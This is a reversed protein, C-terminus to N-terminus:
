DNQHHIHSEHSVGAPGAPSELSYLCGSVKRDEPPQHNPRARTTAGALQHRVMRNILAPLTKDMYTRIRREEFHTYILDDTSPQYLISMFLNEAVNADALYDTIVRDVM